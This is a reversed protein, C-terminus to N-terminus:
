PNEKQSPKGDPNHPPESVTGRGETKMARKIENPYREILRKFENEHQVIGFIFFAFYTGALFAILSTACAAAGARGLWKATGEQSRFKKQATAAKAEQPRTSKFLGFAVGIRFHNYSLANYSSAEATRAALYALMAASWSLLLGAAFCVGATILNRRHAPDDVQFFAAATPIAVLAGGNLLLGAKITQEAFKVAAEYNIRAREFFPELLRDREARLLQQDNSKSAV